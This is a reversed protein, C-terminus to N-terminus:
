KQKGSEEEGEEGESEEEGKKEERILTLERIKKEFNKRQGLLDNREEELDLLANKLNDITVDQQTIYVDLGLLRETFKTPNRKFDCYIFLWDYKQWEVYVEPYERWVSGKPKRGYTKDEDSDLEEKTINAERILRESPKMCIPRVKEGAKNIEPSKDDVFDAFNIDGFQIKRIEEPM